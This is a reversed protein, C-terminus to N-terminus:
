KREGCGITTSLPTLLKVDEIHVTDFIELLATGVISEVTLETDQVDGVLVESFRESCQVRIHIVCMAEEKGQKPPGKM